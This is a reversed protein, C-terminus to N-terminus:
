EGILLDGQGVPGPVGSDDSMAARAPTATIGHIDSTDISTCFRLRKARATRLTM